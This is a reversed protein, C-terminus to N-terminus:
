IELKKKKKKTFGYVFLNNNEGSMKEFDTKNTLAKKTTTKNLKKRTLLHRCNIKLILRKLVYRLKPYSCILSCM